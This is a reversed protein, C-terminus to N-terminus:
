RSRTLTIPACSEACRQRRRRMEAVRQHVDGQGPRYRRLDHQRVLLRRRRVRVGRRQQAVQELHVVERKLLRERPGVAVREDVDLLDHQAAADDRPLPAQQQRVRVAARQVLDELQELYHAVVLVLRALRAEAVDAQVDLVDLHRHLVWHEGLVIAEDQRRRVQPLLARLVEFLVGVQQRRHEM